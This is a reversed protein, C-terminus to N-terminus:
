DIQTLYSSNGYVLESIVEESDLIEQQTMPHGGINLTRPAKAKFSWKRGRSDEHFPAPKEESKETGEEESDTGPEDNETDIEESEIVADPSVTETEASEIVPKSEATEEAQANESEKAQIAAELKANTDLGETNIGLDACKQLLQTKNM